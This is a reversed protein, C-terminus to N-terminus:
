RSDGDGFPDRYCSARYAMEGVQDNYVGKVQGKLWWKGGRKFVRNVTYTDDWWLIVEVHYGYHVPMTIGDITKGSGDYHFNWRGGSIALLNSRGIQQLLIAATGTGEDTVTM